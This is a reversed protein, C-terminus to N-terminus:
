LGKRVPESILMKSFPAVEKLKVDETRENKDLKHAICVASEM